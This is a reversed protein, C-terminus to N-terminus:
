FGVMLHFFLRKAPPFPTLDVGFGTAQNGFNSAEPDYTITKSPAITVLNQGSVGIRISSVANNSIKAINPVAYYLAVERLRIYSADILYNDTTYKPSSGFLRSSVGNIVGEASQQSWDYTTGGEDKLERTLSAIYGGQSTHWLMKFEFNKAITLNNSWSMQFRPQADKIRGKADTFRVPSAGTADRGYWATPSYGQVLRMRGFNGFGSGTFKDPVLLKEMKSKVTWFQLGTTWDIFSNKIISNANLGLEFGKNSLDGIPYKAFSSAGVSPSLIYADLLNFVQKNFYTAEVTLKNKLFGFDLGFELEQATEPNIAANGLVTPTASGLAGGYTVGVLTSYIDAYGAVGGSRGFAVRPKLQSLIANDKLFDFKTLNVALSARPFSYVKTNDGNLSSKDFRVGVRGIVKDGWNFDQSLDAAADQAKSLYNYAIKVNATSPNRQGPLLGEGQLYSEDTKKQNRLLGVQSVLDVEGVKFNYTLFSQMYSNFSINTAYRSAGPNAFGKQYQLDEPAYVRPQSNLYDVGGKISLKLNSTETRLLNFNVAGSNLFRQTSEKNEMRDRVEFPNQGTPTAPYVTKGNANVTPRLDLFNPIYAITYGISVGNNDNGLFARSSATNYYASNVSVDIWDNIKHDLNVRGSYRTFGTNKMIGTENNYGGGVYYKTKENGGSISMNTNVIQGTEGFFEKDYDVTKGNSAALEALGAALTTPGGTYAAGNFNYYDTMKKVSWDESKLLNGATVQGYDQSFSIKTKGSKGRKTTIVIVGANARTGYIASASPGKLVDISEIDAPNIDSIRNAAQDQSGSNASSVAGNFARTGAGTAFQSNDVIIGDIVYLPESSLTLSSIGRLKVSMGGGPAGSNAQINAGILKGSMAGDLTVPRTTGNLDDSSLRAVSTAANSRKINSALGTVVVEELRAASEKMTLNLAGSTASAAVDQSSYGVYSLVLTAAKGTAVQLSYNGDVDTITGNTTGKVVVSVGVLGEGKEDSIKGSVKFQAWASQSLFLLATLLTMRQLISKM